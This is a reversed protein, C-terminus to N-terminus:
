VSTDEFLIVIIQAVHGHFVKPPLGKTLSYAIMLDTEIHEIYM